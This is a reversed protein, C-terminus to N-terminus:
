RCRPLEGVDGQPQRAGHIIACDRGGAGHTRTDAHQLSSGPVTTRVRISVWCKGSVEVTFNRYHWRGGQRSGAVPVEAQREGEKEVCVHLSGPSPFCPMTESPDELKSALPFETPWGAWGSSKSSDGSSLYYWFGICHTGGLPYIGMWLAVAQGAALSGTSTDAVMYHWPSPFLHTGTPDDEPNSVRPTMWDLRGCPAM